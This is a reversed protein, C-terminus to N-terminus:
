QLVKSEAELKGTAEPADRLFDVFFADIGCDVLLKKEEGFEKEVLSVLTKDFWTVDDSVTFRDAIVRKCEHKWLTLLEQSLCLKCALNFGVM